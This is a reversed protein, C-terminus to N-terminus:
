KYLNHKAIYAEVAVPVLYRISKGEAVRARITRSEIAIEPVDCILIRNRFKDDFSKLSFGPRTMAVVSALELIREPEKWTHFGMLNDVGILLHFSDEHRQKHLYQLTEVTFSVGGRTIEVDSAEFRRNGQIACLVMEYRHHAEVIDLGQKHPPVATPIFLIRDLNLKECVYEAVILHGMHPPNFTGGFVGVKM